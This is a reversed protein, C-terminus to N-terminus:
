FRYGLSVTWGSFQALDGRFAAQATLGSRLRFIAGGYLRSSSTVTQADTESVREEFPLDDPLTSTPDVPRTSSTADQYSYRYVGGGFLALTRSVPVQVHLPLDLALRLAEVETHLVSVGGGLRADTADRREFRASPVAGALVILGRKRRAYVYGLTVETVFADLDATGSAEDTFVDEQESVEGNNETRFTQIRETRLAADADGGSFLGSVAGFLYDDRHRSTRLTGLAEVAVGSPSGDLSAESDSTLRRLSAFRRGDDYDQVSEDRDIFQESVADKATRGQYSLSAVADWRRGALAFEAGISYDARDFDVVEDELREDTRTDTFDPFLRESTFLADSELSRALNDTRYGGFLGVAYGGFDTRGVFTVRARTDVDASSQEVRTSTETTSTQNPDFDFRTSLMDTNSTEQTSVANRATVLWRGDRSGVLAAVSVPTGPVDQRGVTGFVFRHDARAARAPNVFLPTVGDLGLLLPFPVEVAAALPTRDPLTPTDLSSVSFSQGLASLPFVFLALALLRPM